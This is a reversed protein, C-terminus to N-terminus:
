SLCIKRVSSGFFMASHSHCKTAKMAKEYKMRVVAGTPVWVVLWQQCWGAHLILFSHSQSAAPSVWSEAALLSCFCSLFGPHRTHCDPAKDEQCRHHEAWGSWLRHGVLLVLWYHSPAFLDLAHFISLSFPFLSLFHWKFTQADHLSLITYLYTICMHSM